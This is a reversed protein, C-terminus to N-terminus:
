AQDVLCLVDSAHTVELKSICTVFCIAEVGSDRDVLKLGVNTIAHHLETLAESVVM